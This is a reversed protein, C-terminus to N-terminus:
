LNQKERQKAKERIEQKQEETLSMWSVIESETRYCGTCVGDELCCDKVCPSDSM